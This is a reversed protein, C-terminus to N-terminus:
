VFLGGNHLSPCRGAPVKGLTFEFPCVTVFQVSKRCLLEKKEDLNIHETRQRPQFAIGTSM